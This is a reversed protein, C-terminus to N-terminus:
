NTKNNRLMTQGVTANARGDLQSVVRSIELLEQLELVTKFDSHGLSALPEPSPTQHILLPNLRLLCPNLPDPLTKVPQTSTLAAFTLTTDEFHVFGGKM